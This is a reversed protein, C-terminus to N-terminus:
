SPKKLNEIITETARKISEDSEEISKIKNIAYSVTTHDKSDFYKGIETLSLNTMTSSLYMSIHRALSVNKNRSKGRIDFTSVNFYSATQSIIQDITIETSKIMQTPIFNKIHEMAIEKTIEKGILESFSYLTILAGELDRVNTKINLCIYELVDQSIKFNLDKCKKLAIAMRTEYQPPQLDVNAGKRFRTILRENIGTLETLPRDCTFVIQKNRETLENFTHFIEEQTSIKDSIFHIDDILLVDATRYKTKFKVNAPKSSIAQILENTFTEATVYIVKMKPNNDYIYNGIAQILHTKGLGVGGYILCPNFSTGPNDAIVKAVSCAFRNNEGIIFNDFTYDKNLTENVAKKKESIKELTNEKVTEEKKIETDVVLNLKIDKDSFDALVNEAQDLCKKKFSDLYFMSSFSLTISTDNEGKYHANKLWTQGSQPMTQNLREIVQDWLEKLM